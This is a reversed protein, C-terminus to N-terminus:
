RTSSVTGDTVIIVGEDALERVASIISRPDRKCQSILESITITPTMTLILEIVQRPTHSPPNNRRYVDRCYDCKRCPATPTEGFYRLMENVRCEHSEFVFKKIADLRNKMTERREEYVKIPIVVHKGDERSRPFFMMPNNSRPIYHIVRMRSLLLLLEYVRQETLGTRSALVPESIYEYDAFIGTYSRLITLLLKDADPELRLEYMRHKEMIVMVRSRSNYDEIFELYGSQGLLMIASLAPAPQLKYRECFLRFNFERLKEFGEGMAINLFVCVKDYISRIYDRPPFSDALRRSLVGKDPVSALIVALSEKGDRGARGAEQYYEELSPPIDHHIVLRVDPKDIGMGFANTAVIVRTTGDKWRNQREAKLEPTLGAHYGEAVIGYSCLVRALETTRKRSRVYVIACGAVKSLIEVMKQEKNETYRVLYSINDRTFSLRFINDPNRFSLKKTIDEVVMPTASATLALVPVGPKERRVIDINLYSPRFDYGWQSICHAEDVVILSVEIRRLLSRFKDGQLKEPSVYLLKIAGGELHNIIRNTEHLTLGSHLAAAKIHRAHLNDVQDKMLSILPTVVLTVGPLMLAPVQFTISKGGGTPMLGLTDCGRMVSDIIEEQCARFNDYGWYEKLVTRAEASM